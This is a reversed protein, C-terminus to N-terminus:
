WRWALSAKVTRAAGWSAFGFFASGVYEKDFLNHVNLAFRANKWDYHLAADAVTYGPVKVTNPLNGWTSGVYRVGAGLGWGDPAGGRLRYHAWLSAMHQPTQQPRQGQEGPRESKTIEADLYTYGAILNLGFDYSAVGELEIGRSRIEGTQRGVFAPPPFELVNQRTLDFLALTFFSKSGAPQYKVGAEYQEGREPKFPTGVADIGAVPLFSTTYSLYPALGTDSLYVLGARGSFKRDDNRTRRATLNNMVETDAWDHRGGLSLVWQKRIKIQDQLYLGTQKLVNNQDQFVAPTAVPAGYVPNFIDLSPAAGFRSVNHEKFNQYDLGLLLTHSVAGSAFEWQAQNDVSFAPVKKDNTFAFRGLTRQDAGLGGGGYVVGRDLVSRDYRLNQRFTWGKDTRHELAWGLAHVAREHHDFGPEGFNRHRPIRGHPNATLSGAAPVWQFDGTKEEQYHALFTWRTNASPQWTLAPAIYRRDDPTFEVQAKSDRALGTLRFWLSGDKGAPGSLDFRGEKREFNGLELAVERLPTVTPRKTVFNVLGGHSGQGYLVSAPGRLVEIREAGYPEPDFAEGRFTLMPLRLGDRYLGNHLADFGRMRLSAARPNFGFTEGQVGPTYRLAEALSAVGQEDLRDRTIVSISQPTEILPTDTKTGTASRPAVYGREQEAPALVRVEPLQPETKQALVALPSVCLAAILAALPRKHVEHM